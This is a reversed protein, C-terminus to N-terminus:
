MGTSLQGFKYPTPVSGTIKQCLKELDTTSINHSNAIQTLCLIRKSIEDAMPAGTPGIYLQVQFGCKVINKYQPENEFVAYDAITHLEVMARQRYDMFIPM